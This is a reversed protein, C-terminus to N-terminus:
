VSMGRYHAVVNACNLRGFCACRGGGSPAGWVKHSYSHEAYESGHGTQDAAAALRCGLLLRALNRCFVLRTWFSFLATADAKIKSRGFLATKNIARDYRLSPAINQEVRFRVTLRIVPHRAKDCGREGGRVHRLSWM